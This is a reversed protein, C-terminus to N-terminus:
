IGAEEQHQKDWFNDFDLRTNGLHQKKVQKLIDKQIQKYVKINKISNLKVKSLGLEKLIVSDLPCHLIPKLKRNKFHFIYFHYKLVVNVAKQSQGIAIKFTKSLYNISRLIDGERLTKNDVKSILKDLQKFLSYRFEELRKKRRSESKYGSKKLTGGISRLIMTANLTSLYVSKLYYDM